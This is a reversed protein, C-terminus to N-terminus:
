VNLTQWTERSTIAIYIFCNIRMPLLRNCSLWRQSARGVAWFLGRLPLFRVKSKMEKEPEANLETAFSHTTPIM